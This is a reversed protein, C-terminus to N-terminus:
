RSLSIVQPFAPRKDAHVSPLSCRAEFRVDQTDDSPDWVEGTASNNLAQSARKLPLFLLAHIHSPDTTHSSYQVLTVDRLKM